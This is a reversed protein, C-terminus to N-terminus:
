MKKLREERDISSLLTQIIKPWAQTEVDGHGLLGGAGQGWSLVKDDHRLLLSHESGCAVKRINNGAGLVPMPVHLFDPSNEGLGLQKSRNNGWAYLVQNYSIALTHSYGCSISAIMVDKLPTILHPHYMHIRRKLHIQPSKRDPFHGKDKSGLNSFDVSKNSMLLCGLQGDNNLGWAYVRGPLRSHSSTM